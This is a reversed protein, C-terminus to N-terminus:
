KVYFELGSDFSNLICLPKGQEMRGKGKSPFFALDRSEQLLCLAQMIVVEGLVAREEAIVSRLGLM